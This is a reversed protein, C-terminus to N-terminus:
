ASKLEKEVRKEIELTLHNSRKRIRHGRGQPAPRLRKLMKASDVKIEKIYLSSLFDEKSSKKNYKRMWSDITALLLKRVHNSAVNKTYTLLFLAKDVPKNRVIDTVLRMKRPSSPIGRLFGVTREKNNERRTQNALRKRAGM